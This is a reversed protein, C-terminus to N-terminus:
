KEFVVFKDNNYIPIDLGEYKETTIKDLIQIMEDTLHNVSDGVVGKRFFIDNSIVNPTADRDKSAKSLKDFSCLKIIEEVEGKAEEEETFPHGIFNALKKVENKADRKMEEYNLFLIKDPWELSAKRYGIVHDWSSGFEFVGKSFCEFAKELMIPDTSSDDIYKKKFHWFSIFVDKPDRCIYVIRSGSSIISKPLSTYPIHTALLGNAYSPNNIYAESEIYPVCDHPCTTALPHTPGYSFKTRNTIAFALAKLWTTGSKPYTALFVDTPQAHFDDQSAMVAELSFSAYESQFWFGQHYWFGEYKYLPADTWTKQMPLTAVTNKYQEIIISM